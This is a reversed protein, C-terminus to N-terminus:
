MPKRWSCCAAFAAAIAPKRVFFGPMQMVTEAGPKRLPSTPRAFAVTLQKGITSILPELSRLM